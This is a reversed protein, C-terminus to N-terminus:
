LKYEEVYFMPADYIITYQTFCGPETSVRRSRETQRVIMMTDNDLGTKNIKAIVTMNGHERIIILGQDVVHRKFTDIDPAVGRFGTYKCEWSEFKKNWVFGTVCETAGERRYYFLGRKNDIMHQVRTLSFNEEDRYFADVTRIIQVFRELGRTDNRNILEWAM